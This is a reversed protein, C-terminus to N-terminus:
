TSNMSYFECLYDESEGAGGRGFFGGFFGESVGDPLFTRSGYMNIHVKKSHM